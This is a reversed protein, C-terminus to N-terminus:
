GKHSRSVPEGTILLKPKNSSLDQNQPYAGLSLHWGQLTATPLLSLPLVLEVRTRVHSRWNSHSMAMVM